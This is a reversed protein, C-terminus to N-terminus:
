VSEACHQDGQKLNFGTIFQKSMYDPLLNTWVSDPLDGSLEGLTKGQRLEKLTIYNGKTIPELVAHYQKRYICYYFSRPQQQLAKIKNTKVSHRNTHYQQWIIDLNFHSSHVSIDQRLILQLHQYQQEPVKALGELREPSIAQEDAAYFSQQRQWDLMALDAILQRNKLSHQRIFHSLAEGYENLNAQKPPYAMVYSKALATFAVDGLYMLCMPYSTRLANILGQSVNHQYIAWQHEPLNTVSATKKNPEILAEVLDNQWQALDM